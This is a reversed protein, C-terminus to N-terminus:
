LYYFSLNCYFYLMSGWLLYSLIFLYVLFKLLLFAICFSTICTLSKPEKVPDSNQSVSLRGLSKTEKLLSDSAQPVSLRGVGAKATNENLVSINGGIANKSESHVNYRKDAITYPEIRQLLLM